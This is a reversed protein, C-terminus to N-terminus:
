FGYGLSTTVRQSGRANPDLIANDFEYEFHLNLSLHNSIKGQLTTHFKYDYDRESGTLPVTTDAVFGYRNREEPSYQATFDETLTYRGNIKYTYDQFVSGFYNVGQEVGVADLEQEIVGAGVDVTQSVGKLLKYGLGANEEVEYNIQRIKDTDYTSDSQTFVRDSLNHRWRFEADYQDTTAVGGSLGYLYRGKILYDDARVTREAEVRATINITRVDNSITNDYGLEVKGTWPTVPLKVVAPQKPRVVAPKVASPPPLGVLSNASNATTAPPNPAITAGNEAVVIDGLIESHFTIKGNERKVVVGTLRDGNSLVLIDAHALTALFLLAMVWASAARM